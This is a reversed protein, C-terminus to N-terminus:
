RQRKPEPLSFAPRTLLQVSVWQGAELRVTGEPLVILCEALAMTELRSGPVCPTVRFTGDRGQFLRGQKFQTWDAERGQLPGTLRAKLSPFPPRRWGAMRLIGPLALQLFAMENSPPGGPLCFVPRGELLGFGVAKGPGMRVRHFVKKWGLEELVGVVLDRESGWAGGSTLLVDHNEFAGPLERLLEERRDPLIRMASAVGFQALWATLTVLNSAYLQGPKLPTGSAVVEDGTAILSVTPVRFVSVREVGAAALWGVRGPGLADGPEGLVAGAAIDTGRAMVNLCPACYEIGVVADADEPLIAGSTIKVCEGPLTRLEGREGAFRSGTVRLRVPNEKSAGATDRARLAYGDKISVDASPSDTRAVVERSLIRGICRLLLIEESGLPETYRQVRQWAEQLGVLGTGEDEKGFPSTM